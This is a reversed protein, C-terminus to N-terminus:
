QCLPRSSVKMLVVPPLRDKSQLRAVYRRTYLRVMTGKDIVEIREFEDPLYTKLMDAPFPKEVDDIFLCQPMRVHMQALYDHLTAAASRALRERDIQMRSYPTAASRKVLRDIQVALMRQGIPDEVLRFRVTTDRQAAIELQVPLFGVAEVLLRSPVSAPLGKIKFSGALNTTARRAGVMVDADLIPREKQDDVTGRLTYTETKVVISDVRVPAVDLEVTLTTDSSFSLTLQRSEYGLARLTLTHPGIPVRPFVFLGNRDTLTNGVGALEVNVGAIRTTAGREIVRGQVTVNQARSVNTAIASLAIPFLVFRFRFRLRTASMPNTGRAQATLARRARAAKSVVKGRARLASRGDGSDASLRM